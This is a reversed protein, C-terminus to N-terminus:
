ILPHAREKAMAKQREENSDSHKGPRLWTGGSFPLGGTGGEEGGLAQPPDTNPLQQSWASPSLEAGKAFRLRLQVRNLPATHTIWLACFCAVEPLSSALNM